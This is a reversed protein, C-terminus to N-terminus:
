STGKTERMLPALDPRTGYRTGQAAWQGLLAALDDRASTRMTAGTGTGGDASAQAAVAALRWRLELNNRVPAAGWADEVLTRARGPERRLLLTRAVWYACERVFSPRSAQSPWAAITAVAVRSTGAQARAYEALIQAFLATDDSAPSAGPGMAVRASAEVQGHRGEIAARLARMLAVRRARGRYAERGTAIAREVESLAVEGEDGRGLRILLEARNVLDYGLSTHDSRERHLTELRERLALAEPLQGLREAQGALNDLSVGILVQDDISTALALVESALQRAQDYQELGEHARALISKAEAENRVYRGTAFFQLPADTMAIVDKYRDDQLRLAAQQLRAQMEARDARQEIALDIAKTFQVDADARRGAVLLATGLDRLGDSAITLLRARIAEDSAARSLTEAEQFQGDALALRARAFAARLRLSVYRPDASIEAVRALATRAGDLERRASHVAAKRLTAEAEGEVNAGAQYLRIAEDLSAIAAASQGGQSQVVGLRVRAAAYQGDLKVARAFNELAAARRGAAEEARGVDLWVSATNPSVDALQRYAAIARDHDRLVASRVAELRWQDEQPLRSASPLLANVKLLAEQAGGNDDLEAKAEALRLHAQIFEPSLRVAELLASRAGAYSGERLKEVGRDFWQIAEPSATPLAAGRWFWGMGALAVVGAAVTLTMWQRRSLRSPGRVEAATARTTEASRYNPSLSRIAGLVEDASQFRESPVKRLLDACLTDYTPALGPVVTSPAAPDVHLLRGIIEARSAGAFPRVGVLCEYLVCGLSFLDSRADVPRGQIQEPSMYALTGVVNGDGTVQSATTADAPQDESIMRKAIGFDLLKPQGSPTIVINQPKIDRHVVGVRHASALAQFLPTMVALMESPQMRGRGLRTALTEGEVYAMVIFDGSVEDTVVEHVTCISPHDLAAVSRAEALLRRRGQEDDPEILFKIAVPRDLTLDRALFVEGMGGAGLVRDLRYHSVQSGVAPRAM